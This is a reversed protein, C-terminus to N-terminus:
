FLTSVIFNILEFEERKYRNFSGPCRNLQKILEVISRFHLSTEYELTKVDFGTCGVAQINCKAEKGAKDSLLRPM